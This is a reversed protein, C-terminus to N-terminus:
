TMKVPHAPVLEPSWTAVAHALIEAADMREADPGPTQGLCRLARVLNVAAQLPEIGMAGDRKSLKKGTDDVILPLHRYQPIFGGLSKLLSIQRFTSTVLDAGRVVETIGQSGEDVACALQYAYQGDRRLVVFDGSDLEPLRFRLAADVEPYGADRCYGPYESEKGAEGAAQLQARTCTCAYLRGNDRLRDLAAKYEAEHESQRRPSGDWLLGHGELQRLITSEAGPVVRPRDLDDIRLRWSGGAARACLFSGLATVLSGFHLPGSPTPAFRGVYPSM